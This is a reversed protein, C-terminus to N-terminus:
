SQHRSRSFSPLPASDQPQTVLLVGAMGLLPLVLLWKLLRYYHMHFMLPFEDFFYLGNKDVMEVLVTGVTRVPVCPLNVKYVGAQNHVFHREIRKEGLYNGPVMLTVVINYPGSSARSEDVIQYQVWFSPGSEDRYSRSSPLVFVGERNNRNSVVNRGQAQSVWAKLPHHQTSTQFCYVNGSMTTVILDLDDGGDVNEALVMSYSTEGIDTADACGTPGDILYLYGDFSTVAITLGQREAGRKKGLDVLLAPAMIRGHTRFPYPGVKSGDSGRLVHIQGSSTPVVVETNGDGDVDGISPGQAILSKLHVTWIEKGDRTWAAVNGRVDASVIELTGDDNIDAAVVQAQIEGMLKPFSARLTGDHHLVYLLGFSTGILIEMKGDNDLDVVTPSSYIYARYSVSDTSLDLEAVWKVQKTKLNFVVISGGVYKGIDLGNLEKAYEPDEYYERDYFYSAGVVMEDIGDGDIDAIVPTCLIHSDVSVYDAEQEHVAELWTDNGWMSEDYDDYDYGYDDSLGEGANAEADRFVDFSELAEEELSGQENEATAEDQLLRRQQPIDAKSSGNGTALNGEHDSANVLSKASDSLVADPKETEIFEDGMLSDDHVDNQTHNAHDPSLGVYWDKKVRRRPVIMKDPMMYGSSRFFLVEGNFTALAIERSGDRDIDYLLASAHVTSQHYAPWGPLKEGDAGDLVELYHVFSPVVVEMKGDSNIDAILPSAYISSSVETQWRIELQQPCQSNALAEENLTPFAISDDSAEQQLFKNNQALDKMNDDHAVPRSLQEEQAGVRRGMVILFLLLLAYCFSSAAGHSAM